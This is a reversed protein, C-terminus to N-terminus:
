RTLDGSQRVPPRSIQKLRWAENFSEWEILYNTLDKGSQCRFEATFVGGFGNSSIIKYGPFEPPIGDKLLNYGLVNRLEEESCRDFVKAPKPTNLLGPTVSDVQTSLSLASMSGLVCVGGALLITRQKRRSISPKDRLRRTARPSYTARVWNTILRNRKVDPLFKAATM